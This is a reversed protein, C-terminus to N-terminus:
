GTSQPVSFGMGKAKLCEQVNSPDLATATPLLKELETEYSAKSISATNTLKASADRFHCFIFKFSTHISESFEHQSQEHINQASFFISCM